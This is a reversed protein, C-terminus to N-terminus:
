AVKRAGRWRLFREREREEMQRVARARLLDERAVVGVLVGDEERVIPLRGVDAEVMRDALASLPEEETATVVGRPGLAQELSAELGVGDRAFRLADARSALAVVRGARDVVPYM